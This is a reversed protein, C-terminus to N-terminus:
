AIGIPETQRGLLRLVHIPLEMQQEAGSEARDIAGSFSQPVSGSMFAQWWWKLTELNALRYNELWVGPVGSNYQVHVNMRGLAFPAAIGTVRRTLKGTVMDATYGYADVPNVGDIPELALTRVINAGFTETVKVITSIPPHLLMITSAGGDYWEDRLTSQVIPGVIDEILVRSAQLWSQFIPLYQTVTPATLRLYNTMESLSVIGQAAQGAPYVYFDVTGIPATGGTAVGTATHMGSETPTFLYTYLGASGTNTMAYPGLTTSDPQIISVTLSPTNTANGNADTVTYSITFVEGVFRSM